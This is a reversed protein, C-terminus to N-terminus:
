PTLVISPLVGPWRPKTPKWHPTGSKGSIRISEDKYYLYVQKSPEDAGTQYSTRTISHCNEFFRERLALELVIRDYIDEVASKQRVCQAPLGNARAYMLLRISPKKFTCNLYQKDVLAWHGREIPKLFFAQQTYWLGKANPNVFFPQFQQRLSSLTTRMKNKVFPSRFVLAYDAFANALSAVRNKEVHSRFEDRDFLQEWMKELSKLYRKKDSDSIKVALISESRAISIFRESFIRQFRQEVPLNLLNTKEGKANNPEAAPPDVSDVESIYLKRDRKVAAIEGQLDNVIAPAVDTTIGGAIDEIEAVDEALEEQLDHIQQRKEVVRDVPNLLRNLSVLRDVYPKIAQATEQALTLDDIKGHGEDALANIRDTLQLVQDRIEPSSIQDIALSELELESM